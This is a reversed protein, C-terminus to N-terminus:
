PLYFLPKIPNEKAAEVDLVWEDIKDKRIYMGYTAREYMDTFSENQHTREDEIFVVEPLKIIINDLSNDYYNYYLLTWDIAFNYNEYVTIFTPKKHENNKIISYITRNYDMRERSVLYVPFVVAFISIIIMVVIITHSLKDGVREKSYLEIAIPLIYVMFPFYYFHYSASNGVLILRSMFTLIAMIILLQKDKDISKIYKIAKIKALYIWIAYVFITFIAVPYKSMSSGRTFLTGFFAELLRINFFSNKAIMDNRFGSPAFQFNIYWWDLLADNLLFYAFFPSLAIIFGAFAVLSKKLISLINKSDRYAIIPIIPTIAIYTSSSAVALALIAGYIFYNKYTFNEKKNVVLLTLTLAFILSLQPQNIFWTHHVFMFFLIIFISYLFSKIHKKYVIYMINYSFFTIIIYIICLFINTFVYFYAMDSFFLKYIKYIGFFFFFFGMNKIDIADKYLVLGSDLAQAINIYAFFDGVNLGNGILVFLCNTTLITVIAALLTYRFIPNKLKNEFKKLM